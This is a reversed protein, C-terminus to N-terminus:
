DENCYVESRQDSKLYDRIARDPDSVQGVAEFCVRVIEAFAGSRSPRIRRQVRRPKSSRKSKLHEDSETPGYKLIEHVYRVAYVGSRGRVTTDDGAEQIALSVVREMRGVEALAKDVFFDQDTADPDRPGELTVCAEHLRLGAVPIVGPETKDIEHLTKRVRALQSQLARLSRRVRSPPDDRNVFHMQVVHLGEELGKIEADSLGNSVLRARQDTDFNPQESPARRRLVGRRRAKAM